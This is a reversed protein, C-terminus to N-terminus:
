KSFIAISVVPLIVWDSFFIRKWLIYVNGGM